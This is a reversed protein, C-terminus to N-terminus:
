LTALIGFHFGFAIGAADLAAAQYWLPYQLFLPDNPITYPTDAAGAGDLLGFQVMVTTALDLNFTGAIGPFPLGPAEAVAVFTAFSANPTGRVKHTVTTGVKRNGAVWYTPGIVDRISVNDINVRPTNSNALYARQFNIRLTVMGTTAPSFRGCIQARKTFQVVYNGFAHRAVEVNDVEVWITGMDANGVTPALPRWGSADCRFEYTLGQVVLIQQEITNPPYPSPTVQGGAGCGFSDSAGMGTVDVGAEWGPNVSYAGGMVWPSLSGTFSGNTVWETQAPALVSVFAAALGPLLHRM